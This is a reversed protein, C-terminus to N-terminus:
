PSAGAAIWTKLKAIDRAPLPTRPPMPPEDRRRVKQFLLSADPDGAIIAPGQDGGRMVNPYSDLRLGGSQERPGHCRVCHRRFVAAVAADFSTASARDDTGGLLLMMWLGPLTFM